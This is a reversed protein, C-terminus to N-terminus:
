RIPGDGHSDEDDSIDDEISPLQPAPPPSSTLDRMEMMKNIMVSSEGKDKLYTGYRLLLESVNQDIAGLYVM